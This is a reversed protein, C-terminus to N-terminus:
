LFAFSCGQGAACNLQIPAGIKLERLTITPRANGIMCNDFMNTHNIIWFRQPAYCEPYQASARLIAAGSTDPAAM